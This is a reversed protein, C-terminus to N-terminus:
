GSPSAKKGPPLCTYMTPKAATHQDIQAILFLTVKSILDGISATNVRHEKKNYQAPRCVPSMLSYIVCTVAFSSFNADSIKFFTRTSESVGRVIIPSQHHQITAPHKYSRLKAWKTTPMQQTTGAGITLKIYHVEQQVKYTRRLIKPSYNALTTAPKQGM